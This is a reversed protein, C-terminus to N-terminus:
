SRFIQIGTLTRAVLEHSDDIPGEAWDTQQRQARQLVFSGFKGAKSAAPLIAGTHWTEYSYDMDVGTM